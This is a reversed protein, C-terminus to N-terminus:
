EKKSKINKKAESVRKYLLSIESKFEALKKLKQDILQIQKELTQEIETLKELKAAPDQTQRVNERQYNFEENIAIFEQLEQLSIGLVDRANIIQELRQIHKDTYIRFGGESREPPFLLGIEEYYRITRKTLGCQKSVQEIKYTNM